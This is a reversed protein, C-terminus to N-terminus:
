HSWDVSNLPMNATELDKVIASSLKDTIGKHFLRLSLRVTLLNHLYDREYDCYIVAVNERKVLNVIDSVKVENSTKIILRRYHDKRYTKEFRNLLILSLIGLTTAAAAVVFQGAGAAMGVSAVLWLSAATTLGRVTLGEKIIVGAGIFGIGSVIQAAIRGPDFPMSLSGANLHLSSVLQSIITFAASGLSVLLHTRLGASRGRMDRELGIMAGLLGAVLLRLLFEANMNWADLVM